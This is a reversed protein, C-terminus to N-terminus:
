VKSKSLAAAARVAGEPTSFVPLGFEEFLRKKAKAYEGGPSCIIVPKGSNKAIEALRAPLADTLAPPGWLAAVIAIDFDDGGLTETLADGYSEDTASGTLDFPNSVTFYSPFTKKLKEVKEDSLQAVILGHAACEDAMSVGIGGGDTIIAVRKGGAGPFRSFVRGADIFEEYGSIEIVGAKKFAARYLEYRGAMAGTHSRAAGGGAGYRGAKLAIVPKKKACRAASEVFKRGDSIGEIYLLAAGTSSDEALFDLCDAEDVDAKNGYSVVRAVGIGESAFEEMAILAFSGSQSLVSVRGLGPRKARERPIFFTDVGSITDFIGMCNPGIIRVGSKNSIEKLEAELAAGNFGTESFGGGIVIAGKLFGAAGRIVEVATSSSVAIVALDVAEGIAKIDPFCPMGRVESHKPNVPYIKGKFGANGLSEMIISALKGKSDTAGVVAISRPNFLFDLKGEPAM